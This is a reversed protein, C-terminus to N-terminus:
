GSGRSCIPPVRDAWPRAKELQGALRFLTDERGFRAAFQMGIPLGADNWYLPISMAPQGSGNFLPTYSAFFFAQSAFAPIGGLVSIFRGANFRVLARMM